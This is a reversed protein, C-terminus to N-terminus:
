KSYSTGKFINGVFIESFYDTFTHVLSFHSVVPDLSQSECCLSSFKPERFV